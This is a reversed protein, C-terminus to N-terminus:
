SERGLLALMRGTRGKEMRYSYFRTRDSSTCIGSDHLSEPRIGADLCQRYIAAAIDVEYAPPRICPSLQIVLNEPQAGFHRQMARIAVTTIGAETGKKGSHVIGFAKTIPDVLFVACCDAVYIGLVIGPSRCILGDAVPSPHRSAREDVIAVHHGHVQEATRLCEARFGLEAVQQRHWDWLRDIVIHREATVDVEPHRLTFRHRFGPMASLAPFAIWLPDSMSNGMADTLDAQM